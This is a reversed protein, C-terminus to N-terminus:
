FIEQRNRKAKRSKTPIIINIHDIGGCHIDLQTGSIKFEHRVNLIGVPFSSGPRRGNWRANLAGGASSFNGYRLDTPNKKEPNKGRARRRLEVLPL